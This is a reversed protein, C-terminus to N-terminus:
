NLSGDDLPVQKLEEIRKKNMTFVHFFLLIFFIFFILFSIVPFIGIGEIGRLVEKYM